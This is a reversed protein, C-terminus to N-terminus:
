LVRCRLFGPRKKDQTWGPSRATWYRAALRDQTRRSGWWEIGNIFAIFKERTLVFCRATQEDSLARVMIM